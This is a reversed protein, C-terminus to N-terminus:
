DSISGDLYSYLVEDAGHIFVRVPPVHGMCVGKSEEGLEPM